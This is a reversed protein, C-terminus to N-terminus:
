NFLVGVGKLFYGRHGAVKQGREFEVMDLLGMIEHHHLKGLTKGDIEMEPLTGWTKIEENDDEDKFIPVKDGLINGILNMKADRQALLRDSEEEQATIKPKHEKSKEVLDECKDKGKSAKKRDAIQKNIEGFEKRLTETKYNSKRWQEDLELVQDVLTEDKFRDRQSKRVLDPNTRILKIDIPM